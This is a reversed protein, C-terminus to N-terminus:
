CGDLGQFIYAGSLLSELLILVNFGDLYVTKGQLDKIELKRSKRESLQRDSASAGRFAQIQRTKLRYRNGALESSAKEPYDRSLLYNMDRVAQKLKEREKEPGFLLDDGTNKSRNRESM